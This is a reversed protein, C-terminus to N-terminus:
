ALLAEVLYEAPEILGTLVDRFIIAVGSTLALFPGYPMVHEDRMLLLPGGYLLGIFPALLFGIVAVKWGFFAGVMAMLKADGLGMAERQFMVYGVVATLVV